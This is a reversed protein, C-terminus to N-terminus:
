LPLVCRFGNRYHPGEITETARLARSDVDDFSGGRSAGYQFPAGLAILEYVNGAVDHVGWRSDGALHTGVPCTTTRRPANAPGSWCARNADPEENGWPYYRQQAGGSAVYESEEATPLRGGIWACFAIAEYAQVCNIPHDARDKGWNCQDQDKFSHEREKLTPTLWPPDCSGAEVCKGFAAVTVPVEGLRFSEVTVLREHPLDARYRDPQYIFTGRPITVFALGSNAEITRAPPPDPEYAQAAGEAPGADQACRIGITPLAANAAAHHRARAALDRPDTADWSAGFVAKENGGYAGYDWNTSTWQSVNGILDQHDWRAAGAPHASVDCTDSRKGGSDNGPGSWCARPGPDDNGWPYTRRDSGGSAAYALEQETPLRAGVWTCFAEARQLDVCAAPRETRDNGASCAPQGKPPAIPACARADVCRQYQGVTVPAESLRFAHLTVPPRAQPEYAGAPVDIFVIGGIPDLTRGTKIGAAAVLPSRLLAARLRVRQAFAVGGLLVMVVLVAAVIISTRGRDAGHARIEPGTM